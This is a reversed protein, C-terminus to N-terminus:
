DVFFYKWFPIVSIGDREIETNYTIITGTKLGLADMAKRLGRVEREFTTEGAFEYAAQVAALSDKRKVIFDCEYTDNFYFLEAGLKSLETFVLNEFLNGKNASFRFSVNAPFANDECYVKKKNRMQAAVSYSFLPIEKILFSKELLRVFEKMSMDSSEMKKGLSSYSYLASINSLLYHVLQRFGKVERVTSNAICDKLIITEYYSLVIDRRNEEDKAAVVEPFGGFELMDDVIALVESKREYLSLTDKIGIHRLRESFSYPYVHSVIYRGSLRTAYEGELLSSNSGTICIKKFRGSDYASKVFKEWSNVQQIEDFFIYEMKRGALKEATEIVTELNRPDKCVDIFFPDDFNISLIAGSNVGSELLYNIIMKFITSKGSRRIGTLVLMEKLALQKKVVEFLERDLYDEYRGHIWHRNQFSIAKEM